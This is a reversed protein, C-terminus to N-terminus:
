VRHQELQVLAIKNTHALPLLDHLLPPSSTEPFPGPRFSILADTRKVSITIDTAGLSRELRSALILDCQNINSARNISEHCAVRQHIAMPLAKFPSDRTAFPGGKMVAILM